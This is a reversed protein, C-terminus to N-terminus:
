RRPSRPTSRQRQPGIRPVHEDPPSMALASGPRAGSGSGRRPRADQVERRLAVDIPAHVSKKCWSIAASGKQEDPQDGSDPPHQDHGRLKLLRLRVLLQVTEQKSSPTSANSTSAMAAAIKQDAVADPFEDRTGVRASQRARHSDTATSMGPPGARHAPGTGGVRQGGKWATM